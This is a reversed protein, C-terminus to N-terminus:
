RAPIRSPARSGASRHTGGNGIQLTGATITTTGTYTNTGTFTTIGGGSKRVAGTGSIANGVTLANSRNFTLTGANMVAGTGLTGTTAGSGVQVTGALISTTGSNTNAGTLTMTGAGTKTLTGTGSMANAVTHANSRNFILASNNIVAGSGLQGSTGGNGIQLTGNSVTTTGTYSNNASLTTTGTGAQVLRGSGSIANAVTVADSRNFTLTGANVVAGTGLTGTTGANGIQLTGATITTTGTYANAGTFTTVGSGSQRVAGTGSIANAVTLANSRNFTLTAANVVAGTGLTGSTGGSGIQLTGASITTLGSYTIQGSLSTTGAGSQALVGTGSIVNSITLANSRSVALTGDNVVNGTCWSGQREVTGSKCHEPPLPRAARITIPAPSFSEDREQNRCDPEFRLNELGHHSTTAAGATVGPVAGSLTITNGALTYGDTNFTINHATIGSGLTVTGVTGGFVADHPPFVVNSWKVCCAGNTWTNTSTNWTGSGGPTVGNPTWTLTQQALAPRALTVLGALFLATRFSHRMFLFAGTLQCGPGILSQAILAGPLGPRIRKDAFSKCEQTLVSHAIEACRPICFRNTM